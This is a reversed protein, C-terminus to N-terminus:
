RRIWVECDLKQNTKGSITESPRAQINIIEDVDKRFFIHHRGKIREDFDLRLLLNRVEGFSFNVDSKGLLLKLLLKSFQSM